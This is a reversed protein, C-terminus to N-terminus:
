ISRPQEGPGAGRVMVAFPKDDREGQAAAAVRRGIARHRRGGPPLRRPGQRGRRHGGSPRARGPRPPGTRRGAAARRTAAPCGPDARRAPTPSPTSAVTPRTTTSRRARGRVDDFAPWRPPSAPRLPRSTVITYRPGCDTCNTFPYRYRRNAPDDVEALCEDCTATDVTVPVDPMGRAGSREIRFETWGALEEAATVHVSEVVALPPPTEAVIRCLEKLAQRDGEAEILVGQSDNRVFGALGLGVAQRYVFPRFGVGQVTGTVRIRRREAGALISAHGGDHAGTPASRGRMAM